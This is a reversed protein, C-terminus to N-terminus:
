LGNMEALLTNHGMCGWLSGRIDTVQSNFKHDPGKVSLVSHDTRMM